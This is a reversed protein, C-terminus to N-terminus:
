AIPVIKVMKDGINCAAGLGKAFNAQAKAEDETKGSEMMLRVFEAESVEVEEKKPGYKMEMYKHINPFM